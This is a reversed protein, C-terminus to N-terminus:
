VAASSVAPRHKKSCAENGAYSCSSVEGEEGESGRPSVEDQGAGTGARARAHAKPEGGAQGLNRQQGKPRSPAASRGSDHSASSSARSRVEVPRKRSRHQLALVCIHASEALACLCAHWVAGCQWPMRSRVEKAHRRRREAEAQKRDLEALFMAAQKRQQLEMSKRTAAQKRSRLRIVVMSLVLAGVVVISPLSQLVAKLLLVSLPLCLIPVNSQVSHWVASGPAHGRIRWM